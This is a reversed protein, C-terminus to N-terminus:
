SNQESASRIIAPAFSSTLSIVIKGGSYKNVAKVKRVGLAM